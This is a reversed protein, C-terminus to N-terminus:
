VNQIVGCELLLQHQIKKAIKLLVHNNVLLSSIYSWLTIEEPCIKLM